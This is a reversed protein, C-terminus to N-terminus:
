EDTTSIHSALRPARALIGVPEDVTVLDWSEGGNPDVTIEIAMDDREIGITFDDLWRPEADQRPHFRLVRCELRKVSPKRPRRSM